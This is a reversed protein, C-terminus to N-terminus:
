GKRPSGHYRAFGIPDGRQGDEHHVGKGTIAENGPMGDLVPCSDRHPCRNINRIARELKSISKRFKENEEKLTNVVMENAKKVLDVMADANSIEAKEAEEEKVRVGAKRERRIYLLSGGLILTNVITALWEIGM